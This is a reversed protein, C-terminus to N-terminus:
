YSVYCLSSVCYLIPASLLHSITARPKVEQANKKWIKFLTKLSKRKSFRMNVSRLVTWMLLVTVTSTSTWSMITIYWSSSNNGMLAGFNSFSPLLLLLPKQNLYGSHLYFCQFLATTPLSYYSDWILTDETKRMLSLQWLNACTTLPSSPYVSIEM